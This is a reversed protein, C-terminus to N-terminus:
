TQKLVYFDLRSLFKKLYEVSNENIEAKKLKFAYCKGSVFEIIKPYGNVLRTIDFKSFDTRQSFYLFIHDGDESIREINLKEATLRLDTIKFLMQTEQPIKGFRDLLESRIGEAEKLDKTNVLKRYFLIRIDENEIYTSPIM